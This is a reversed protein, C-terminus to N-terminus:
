SGMKIDIANEPAWTGTTMTVNPSLDEPSKSLMVDVDIGYVRRIFKMFLAATEVWEEDPAVTGAVEIFEVTGFDDRTHYSLM